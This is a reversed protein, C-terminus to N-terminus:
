LEKSYEFQRAIAYWLYGHLAITKVDFCVMEDISFDSFQVGFFNRSFIKACLAHIDNFWLFYANNILPEHCIM